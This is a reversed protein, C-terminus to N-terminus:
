TGAQIRFRGAVAAMQAALGTLEQRIEVTLQTITEDPESVLASKASSADRSLVRLTRIIEQDVSDQGELMAAVESSVNKCNVLARMAWRRDNVDIAHDLDNEITQFQPLLVLLHNLAMRRETRKIAEVSAESANATRILQWITISFGIATIALGVIGLVNSLM